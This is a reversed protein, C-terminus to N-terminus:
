RVAVAAGAQLRARWPSYRAVFLPAAGHLGLASLHGATRHDSPGVWLSFGRGPTAIMHGAVEIESRWLRGGHSTYTVMDWAPLRVSRTSTGDLTLIETGNEDVLAGRFDAGSYMSSISAVYKPYGWIERGAVDAEETTVPLDLVAWGTRRRALPGFMDLLGSVRRRSGIPWAAITVAVERYAGLSSETYDFFGIGAISRGGPVRAAELRYPALLRDAAAHPIAFIAQVATGALYRVPLEVPGISTETTTPTRSISDM